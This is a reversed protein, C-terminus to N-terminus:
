SMEVSTKRPWTRDSAMVQDLLAQNDSLKERSQLAHSLHAVTAAFRGNRIRCGAHLARVALDSDELGWGQYSEDFGGLRLADDRFFSLNCTRVKRWDEPSLDRLVGLPILTFKWHLFAENLDGGDVIRESSDESLLKRGGSVLHGPAALWCHNQIFSSPLLCDGDIFILYESRSRTIALNRCRAARFDRDPQWCHILPLRDQMRQIVEGIEFTSGDDAILIEDPIRRQLALSELLRQLARPQNYSTIVLGVSEPLSM